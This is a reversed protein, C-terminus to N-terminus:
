GLCAASSVFACGLAGPTQAAGGPARLDQLAVHASQCLARRQGEPPGGARGGGQRRRLPAPRRPQRRLSPRARMSQLRHQLGQPM